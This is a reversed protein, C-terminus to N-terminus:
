RLAGLRRFGLVRKRSYRRVNVQNEQNGGLVWVFRADMRVVFGAHGKWSDPNDRWLVVVDGFRTFLTPIVAGIQLWSRAALSDSREFGAKWCVYNLYASCWPIEDKDAWDAVLQLMEVIVPNDSEGRVEKLGYYRFAEEMLEYNAIM